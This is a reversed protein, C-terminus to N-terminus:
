RNEERAELKEKRFRLRIGYDHNIRDAFRNPNEYKVEEHM